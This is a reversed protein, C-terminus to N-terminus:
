PFRGGYCVTISHLEVVQQGNLCPVHLSPRLSMSATDNEDPPIYTLLVFTLSQFEFPFLRFQREAIMQFCPRQPTLALLLLCTLAFPSRCLGTEYESAPSLQLMSRATSSRSAFPQFKQQGRAASMEPALPLPRYPCHFLESSYVLEEHLGKAQTFAPHDLTGAFFAAGRALEFVPTLFPRSTM